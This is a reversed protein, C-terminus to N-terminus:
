RLMKLWPYLLTSFNGLAYKRIINLQNNTARSNKTICAFHGHWFLCMKELLASESPNAMRQIWDANQQFILKRDQAKLMKKDETSLDKLQKKPFNPFAYKLEKKSNAQEFFAKITQDLTLNKANKWDQPSMGFGARWALHKIKEKTTM